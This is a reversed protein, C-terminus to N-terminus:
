TMNTSLITTHQLESSAPLMPHLMVLRGKALQGRRDKRALRLGLWSRERKGTVHWREWEEGCWVGHGGVM